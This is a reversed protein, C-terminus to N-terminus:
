SAASTLAKVGWGELGRPGRETRWLRLRYFWAIEFFGAERLLVLMKAKQRLHLHWLALISPWPHTDRHLEQAMCTAYVLCRWIRAAGPYLWGFSPCLRHGSDKTLYKCLYAAAKQESRGRRTVQRVDVVPSQHIEAWLSSLLAQEVYSGRLVAHIHHQGSATHETVKVYDIVTGLRRLRKVLCRWSREIDSPAEPASTLTILRHQGLKSLGSMIRHFGRRKKKEAKRGSIAMKDLSALILTSDQPTLAQPDATIDAEPM